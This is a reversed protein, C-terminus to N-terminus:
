SRFGMDREFNKSGKMGKLSEFHKWMEEEPMKALEAPTMKKVPAGPAAGLSANREQSQAIKAAKEAEATFQGNEARPPLERPEAAPKAQPMQLGFRAAVQELADEIPIYEQRAWKIISAEYNDVMQQLQHDPVGSEAYTKAAALRVDQYLQAVEPRAATVKQLRASARSLTDQFERAEKQQQAWQELEAEKAKEARQEQRDKWALYGMPDQNLDPRPDEAAPEPANDKYFREVMKAFRDEAQARAQREQQLESQVRDVAQKPVYGDPRDRSNAPDTRPPKDDQSRTEVEAGEEPPEPSPDAPPAADPAAGEPADGVDDLDGPKM